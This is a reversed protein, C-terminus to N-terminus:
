TNFDSKKPNYDHLSLIIKSIADQACDKADEPYKLYRLAHYYALKSYLDIIMDLAESVGMQAQLITEKKIKNM